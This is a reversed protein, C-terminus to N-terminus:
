SSAGQQRPHALGANLGSHITRCMETHGLGCRYAAGKLQSLVLDLDLAGAAILTGLSFAAINLTHNRTGPVAEAVKRVEDRLAAEAYRSLNTLRQGLDRDGDHHREDRDDRDCDPAADLVDLVLGPPPRLDDLGAPGHDRQAFEYRRGSSHVSPPAVVYGGDARWDLGPM